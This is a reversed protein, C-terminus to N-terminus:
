KLAVIVKTLRQTLRDVSAKSRPDRLGGTEDFAENIKPLSVQEPLVLAGISGLIARLHFLGCYAGILGPSGGMIGAVKGTFALLGAEGPAARSAWDIANKLVGSISRNYEPSAILMGDHDILLQKFRRAHEPFGQQDQVDGDYYPMPFDRMDVETVLAGADRASAVAVRLLKKNWSGERTSGSFAVITPTPM